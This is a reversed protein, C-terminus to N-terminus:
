CGGEWHAFFVAVDDGDVGGDQNVDADSSGSEWSAFFADVDSGDIGGDRNFDGTADVEITAISTPFCGCSDCVLCDYDGGGSCDIGYVLLSASNVNYYINDQAETLNVFEGRANRRRWQYTLASSGSAVVDLELFSGSSTRGGVPQVTIGVGSSGFYISGATAVGSVGSGPPATINGVPLQVDCSYIAIRGGGGPGFYSSAGGARVFGSGSLSGSTIQIGGGAGSGAPSTGPLGDAAVLGDVTLVDRVRLNILGGGSGATVGFYSGGGSGFDLPQSESGYPTGGALPGSSGGSGGFGGGAAGYSGSFSAQGAGPGTDSAYGSGTAGFTAGAGILMSGGVALSAREAAAHHLATGAGTLAVDGSVLTDGILELSAANGLKLGNSITQPVSLTVNASSELTWDTAHLDDDVPTAASRPTPSNAVIFGIDAGPHNVVITGAGGRTHYSYTSTGGRASMTGVFGPPAEVAIRGGAGGGYTSSGGDASLSGDGLFQTAFVRLSGGAGSGAAGSGALGDARFFGFHRLTGLVKLYIAGGGAGGANGPYRGGGSGMQSPVLPNDYARGGAFPSNDGGNGGHAGGAAGYSGNNSTTGAGPGENSQYGVGSIDIGSGPAVGMDGSVALEVPLGVPHTIVNADAPGLSLSGDFRNFGAFVIRAGGNINVDGHAHQPVDFSINAGSGLNMLEPTLNVTVPTIAGLPMSGNEIKLVGDPHSAIKTWVTGAGGRAPNSYPSSGGRAHVSGAFMDGSSYIAIRGGSGAGYTSSGGDCSIAGGGSFAAASLWVSGGSGSGAAGPGGGGDARIDGEVSISGGVIMKIASGGGGGVNGVYDGGASGMDVPQTISGYSVGGSFPGTSTGFAGHGGGAAGYSGNSSPTGFGPGTNYGLGSVDIACGPAISCDTGILFSLPMGRASTVVARTGEVRLSGTVIMSGGRFEAVAGDSVSVNGEVHQVSYFIPRAGHAVRLDSADLDGVIPTSAAGYAGGGDILIGPHSSSELKTYVTGAGAFPNASYPSIGPHADLRMSYAAVGYTLSIRGGGGAGYTSSGGNAAIIAAGGASTFSSAKIRISGGSGSGAPGVGSWGSANVAGDITCTGGVFLQVCGGGAGGPYGFYEGGGSGFEVPESISGYSEGGAFPGNTSGDGGHGAGAAGYSGNTSDSGKGPGISTGYGAGSVDIASAAGGSSGQVYLDGAVVLKLGDVVEAGYTFSHGPSHTLTAPTGFADRVLSLSGIDHRGNIVLTTGSVTIQATALPVGLIATDAPGITLPTTVTVPQALACQGVCAVLAAIMAREFSSNM